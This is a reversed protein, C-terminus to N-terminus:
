FGFPDGGNNYDNPDNLGSQCIISEFKLEVVIITPPDYQEKQKTDM